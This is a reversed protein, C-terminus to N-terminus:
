PSPVDLRRVFVYLDRRRHEQDRVYQSLVAERQFGHKEVLRIAPGQEPILESVLIEMGLTQAIDILEAMVVDALGRRRYDPDVVIRIEAVHKMWGYPRFHLTADAVIRGDSEVVVPLVQAYDLDRSWAEITEEQTVDDRLFLRDAEPIARFFDLLREQDGKVMLRVTATSGDELDVRKPYKKM